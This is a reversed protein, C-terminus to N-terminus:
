NNIFLGIDGDVNNNVFTINLTNIIIIMGKNSSTLAIDGNRSDCVLRLILNM